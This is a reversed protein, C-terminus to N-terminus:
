KSGFDLVDLKNGNFWPVVVLKRKTDYGLDAPAEIGLQLDEWAGPKGRYITKGDWSSILFTGDPLVVIGDLDGKPLKEQKPEGKTPLQYLAGTRATVVYIKGNAEVIGNPGGLTASKALTIVKDTKDIAYIADTGTPELKASMGTDTVFVGGAKRPAVDNLFTSGAIEIDALQRGTALEFKRVVSIDAVYLVGDSIAMGKPADLKIGPKSGDIWKLDKVKRDPGLKTIFGNDDKASMGGNINSVLYTDSAADYLVSEPTQFAAKIETRLVGGLTATADAGATSAALAIACLSLKTM